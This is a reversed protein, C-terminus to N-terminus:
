RYTYLRLLANYMEKPGGECYFTGKNDTYLGGLIKALIKFNKPLIYEGTRNNCVVLDFTDMDYVFFLSKGVVKRFDLPIMAVKLKDGDITGDNLYSITNSDVLLDIYGGSKLKAVILSLGDDFKHIIENQTIAFVM